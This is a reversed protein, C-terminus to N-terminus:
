AWGPRDLDLDVVNALFTLNPWHNGTKVLRSWMDLDKCGHVKMTLKDCQAIILWTLGLSWGTLLTKGAAVMYLLLSGSGVMAM